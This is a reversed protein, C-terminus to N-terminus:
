STGRPLQSTYMIAMSLLSENLIHLTSPPPRWWIVASMVDVERNSPPATTHVMGDQFQVEVVVVVVMAVVMEILAGMTGLNSNYVPHSYKPCIQSDGPEM